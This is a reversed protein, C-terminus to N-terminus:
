PFVVEVVTHDYGIACYRKECDALSIWDCLEDLTIYPGLRM